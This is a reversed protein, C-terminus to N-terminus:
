AAVRAADIREGVLAVMAAHQGDAEGRDGTVTWEDQSVLRDATPGIVATEYVGTGRDVATTTVCLGEGVATHLVASPDGPDASYCGCFVSM